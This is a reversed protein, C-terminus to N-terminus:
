EILILRFRNNEVGYFLTGNNKFHQSFRPLVTVGGEKKELIKKEASRWDSTVTVQYLGTSGQVETGNFFLHFKDKERIMGFSGTERREPIHAKKNIVLFGTSGGWHIRTFLIKGYIYVKGAPSNEDKERSIREAAIVLSTSLPDIGRIHFKRLGANDKGVAKDLKGRPIAGDSTRLIKFNTFDLKRFFVQDSFDKDPPGAFGALYITNRLPDLKFSVENVKHDKVVVPIRHGFDIRPFYKVLHYSSKGKGPHVKDLYLIEGRENLEIKRLAGFSLENKYLQKFRLNTIVYQRGYLILIKQGEGSFRVLPPYISDKQAVEFSGLKVGHGIKNGKLDYKEGTIRLEDGKLRYYFIWILDQLYYANIVHGFPKDPKLRKEWKKQLDFSFKELMLTSKSEHYPISKFRPRNYHWIFAEHNLLLYNLNEKEFGSLLYFGDNSKGLLKKDDKKYTFVNSFMANQSKLWPTCTLIFLASLALVVSNKM